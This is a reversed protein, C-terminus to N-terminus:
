FQYHYKQILTQDKHAVLESLETSYYERYPKHRSTNARPAQQLYDTTREVLFPDTQELYHRLSDRLNEAPLVTLSNAGKYMRQYLFSYFGSDTQMSEIDSRILNLGSNQFQEPLSLMLKDRLQSNDSLTLLNTISQEFGQQRYNSVLNFLLNPQAMQSQFSFWSVYYAWPNRVTGLVPLRQYVTPLESYPLHYGIQKSYPIRELLMRNVFTGASKHMHLFVFKPCIVM